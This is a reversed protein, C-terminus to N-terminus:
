IHRIVLNVWMAVVDVTISTWENHIKSGFCTNLCSNWRTLSVNFTYMCRHWFKTWVHARIAVTWDPVIDTCKCKQLVHKSMGMLLLMIRKGASASFLAPSTPVKPSNFQGKYQDPKCLASGRASSQWHLGNHMWIHISHHEWLRLLLGARQLCWLKFFLVFCFVQKWLRKPYPDCLIECCCDSTIFM